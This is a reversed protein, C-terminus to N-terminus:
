TRHFGRSWTHPPLTHRPLWGAFVTSSLWFALHTLGTFHFTGKAFSGSMVSWPSENIPDIRRTRPLNVREDVLYVLPLVQLDCPITDSGVIPSTSNVTLADLRKAFPEFLAKGLHM